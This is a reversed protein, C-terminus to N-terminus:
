KSATPTFGIVRDFLEDLGEVEDKREIHYRLRFATVQPTLDPWPKLEQLTDHLKELKAQRGPDHEPLVHTLQVLLCECLQPAAKRRLAGVRESRRLADFLSAPQSTIWTASIPM